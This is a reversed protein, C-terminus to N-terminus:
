HHGGNGSSGQELLNKLLDMFSGTRPGWEEYLVSPRSKKYDTPVTFGIRELGEKFQDRTQDGVWEFNFSLRMDTGLTFLSKSCLSGFIPSFTGYNGSGLNIQDAYQKSFEFIEILNEYEENELHERADERFLEETWKKRTGSGSSVAVDKKAQAGFLKPIVIEFTEHKYYELEVAYLTFRSNANIFLILDKLQTHLKDMLVVFSFNGRSVNNEIRDLLETVQDEELGYFEILKQRLPTQFLMRTHEDLKNVISGEDLRSRWLSAGYDLVQAVVLRKDANRYLKTEVVYVEGDKDIGLADVPGSSTPFERALILLHIDEKIEYLPISEPNACIYGQLDAEKDFPLKDLRKANKGDQSFFISM